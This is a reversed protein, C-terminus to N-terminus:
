LRVSLQNPRYDSVGQALYWIEQVLIIAVYQCEEHLSSWELVFMGSRFDTTTFYFFLGLSMVIKVNYDLLKLIYKATSYFIFMTRLKGRSVPLIVQFLLYLTYHNYYSNGKM